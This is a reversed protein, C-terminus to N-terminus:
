TGKWGTIFIDFPRVIQKVNKKNFKNCIIVYQIVFIFLYIEYLIDHENYRVNHDLFDSCPVFTKGKKIIFIVKFLIIGYSMYCEIYM